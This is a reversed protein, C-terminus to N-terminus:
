QLIPPSNDLNDLGHKCVAFKWMSRLVTTTTQGKNQILVAHQHGQIGGQKLVLELTFDTCLAVPQTFSASCFRMKSVHKINKTLYGRTGSLVVFLLPPDSLHTQAWSESSNLLAQGDFHRHAASNTHDSFGNHSHKGTKTPAKVM